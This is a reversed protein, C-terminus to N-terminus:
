RGKEKIVSTYPSNYIIDPAVWFDNTYDLDLGQKEYAKWLIKSCNWIRNGPKFAVPFFLKGNCRKLYDVAKKKIEPSAEVRLLCVESYDRYHSIPRVAVGLDLYGEIVHGDGIYLGAHSFRGYSCGPHGGLIIDGPELGAFSINNNYHSNFGYGVKVQRVNKLYTYLVLDKNKIVNKNSAVISTLLIICLFPFLLLTGYNQIILRIKM